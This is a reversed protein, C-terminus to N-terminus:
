GSLGVQYRAWLTTTVWSDGCEQLKKALEEVLRKGSDQVWWEDNLKDLLVGWHLFVLMAMPEGRRFENMFDKGAMALWILVLEKGKSFCTRLDGIAATLTAHQEETKTKRMNENLAELEDLALRISPDQTTSMPLVWLAFVPGFPGPRLHERGSKCIFRIGELLEFLFLISETRGKESGDEAFRTSLIVGMMAVVSFAFLANCNGQTLSSLADRFGGFARNQHELARAVYDESQSAREAAIHLAALGLLGDMLFEHNLAEQVVFVKWVDSSVATASFTFCTKTSYQHMLELERM